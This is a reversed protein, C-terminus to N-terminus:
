ISLLRFAISFASNLWEVVHGVFNLESATECIGTTINKFLVVGSDILEVAETPRSNSCCVDTVSFQITESVVLKFFVPFSATSLIIVVSPVRAASNVM